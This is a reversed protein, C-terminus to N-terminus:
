RLFANPYANQYTRTADSYFNTSLDTYTSQLLRITYQTNHVGSSGEYYELNWNWAAKHQAAALAANNTSYGGGFYTTSGHAITNSLGTAYMLTALNNLVGQTETQVGAVVGNGDVDGWNADPVFDFTTVPTFSAHCQNCAAIDDVTHQVGNTDKYQYSMEFTHSGLVNVFQNYVATTVPTVVGDIALSDQPVGNVPARLTYMHCTQCDALHTHFSNGMNLGYDYGGLGAFIEGATSMDPTTTQYYMQNTGSGSVQIQTPWERANHCVMCAASLGANTVTVTSNTLQLRATTLSDGLGIYITPSNTLLPNGLQVSGYFRLQHRDSNGFANHPDHCVQCTLPGTGLAVANAGSANTIGASVGEAVSIFGAPSHCQSCGARNGTSSVSEYGGAHPSVEWQQVNVEETGSQHCSACVRVDLSVSPSGPHRSGPGHCSECQINALNQLETPMAAFNGAKLVAPFAWGLQQQVAYFNGNTAAPSQNFGVTHCQFCSENYHSSLLGDVGRQAMTAHKTQSWPTVMDDQGVNNGPGHCINCFQYGTWSAATNTLIQGTVNNSIIYVGEVDPRLEAILGNTHGLTAVSGDPHSVLSWNMSNTAGKYFATVGVPINPQAPTQLSCAVTFVGSRTVSGNSVLLKFGYTAASAEQNDLSIGVLRGFRHEPEVYEQNTVGGEVYSYYMSNSSGTMTVFNTLADTTFSTSVVGNTSLTVTKGSTQSWAYTLAGTLGSTPVISGDLTVSNEFGVDYLNTTVTLPSPPLSATITVSFTQSGINKRNFTATVHMVAAGTFSSPIQVSTGSVFESVGLSPNNITLLPFKAHFKKGVITAKVVLPGANTM